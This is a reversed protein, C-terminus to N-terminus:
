TNLMAKGLTEFESKRPHSQRWVLGIQRTPKPEEFPIVSINPPLNPIGTAMEPLLTTGYGSNVMQILTQLSTASYAKRNEPQQLGCAALAHDRLCHGDELLLLEDTNLDGINIIKSHPEQDQHSALLFPEEFLFMQTMNPTKFPFAMLLLDLTGEQLKQVLRDSLDEYLHLELFPFKNQISPLIQPLFYPAITPIVGLRLPGTLPAKIQKARATITDTDRLIRRAKISVETGFATLSINKRGRIVLKQDLIYELDKIGASLTSQTINCINAATSFSKKDELAILFELQRLTPRIM